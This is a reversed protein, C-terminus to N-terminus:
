RLKGVYIIHRLKFHIMRVLKIYVRIHLFQRSNECLMKLTNQRNAIVNRAKLKYHRSSTIESKLVTICKLKIYYEKCFGFRLAVKVIYIFFM